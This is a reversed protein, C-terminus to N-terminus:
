ASSAAFYVTCVGFKREFIQSIRFELVYGAELVELLPHPPERTGGRGSDPTFPLSGECNGQLGTSVRYM